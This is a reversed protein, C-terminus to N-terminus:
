IIINYLNFLYIRICMAAHEGIEFSCHFLTKPHISLKM